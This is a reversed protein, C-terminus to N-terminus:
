IVASHLFRESKKLRYSHRQFFCMRFSKKGITNKYKKEQLIERCLVVITLHLANRKRERQNLDFVLFNNLIFLVNRHYDKMIKM